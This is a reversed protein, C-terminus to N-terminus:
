HKILEAIGRASHALIAGLADAENMDLQNAHYISPMRGWFM